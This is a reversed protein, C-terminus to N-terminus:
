YYGGKRIPRDRGNQSEVTSLFKDVALLLGDANGSMGELPPVPEGEKSSSTSNNYSLGQQLRVVHQQQRRTQTRTHARTQMKKTSTDVASKRADLVETPMIISRESNGELLHCSACKCEKQLRALSRANKRLILLQQRAESLQHELDYLQQRASGPMALATPLVYYHYLYSVEPSSCSSGYRFIRYSEYDGPSSPPADPLNKEKRKSFHQSGTSM